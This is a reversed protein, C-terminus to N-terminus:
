NNKQTFTSTKFTETYINLVGWLSLRFLLFLSYVQFPKYWTATTIAAAASLPSLIVCHCDYFLQLQNGAKCNWQLVPSLKLTGDHTTTPQGTYIYDM